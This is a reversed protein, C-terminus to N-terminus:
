ISYRLSLSFTRGQKFLGYIYETDKFMQSTRTEADLLNKASIKMGVGGKLRQSYVLDVTTRPREFIDPAAGESVTILRKGFVNYYLSVVSGWEAKDFSVDLNAIFPSQGELSRSTSADPDAARIVMLEEAPIDVESHVVTFNGGVQFNGLASAVQDLRKRVEFELGYVIGQDVNQVSLSNNGTSTQIVREIPNEFNKYFASAAV